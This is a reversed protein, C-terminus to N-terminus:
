AVGVLLAALVAACAAVQILRVMALRRSSDGRQRTVAYRTPAGREIKRRAEDSFNEASIRLRPRSNCAARAGCSVCLARPQLRGGRLRRRALPPLGRRARPARAGM